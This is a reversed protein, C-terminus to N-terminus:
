VYEVEVETRKVPRLAYGKKHLYYKVADVREIVDKNGLKIDGSIMDRGHMVTVHNDYKMHKRIQHLTNETYLYAFWCILQRSMPIKGFRRSDVIVDFYTHGMVDLVADTIAGLTITQQTNKLYEERWERFALDPDGRWESKGVFYAHIFASRVEADTFITDGTNYLTRM